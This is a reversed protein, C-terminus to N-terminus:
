WFNIISIIFRLWNLNGGLLPTKLGSLKGIEM